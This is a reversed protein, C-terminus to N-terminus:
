PNPAAPKVSKSALIEIFRLLSVIEPTKHCKRVVDELWIRADEFLERALLGQTYDTAYALFGSELLPLNETRDVIGRWKNLFLLRNRVLIEGSTEATEYYRIERLARITGSWHHDYGTTPVIYSKLGAQRIQLGLDWEEFYCPTFGNEFRIIKQDFHELKIAFFFGSVADVTIPHSFTGKDFYMYDKCLSFNFFSGQPGVCAADPLEYLAQELDDIASREVHLDANLIFVTPTAAMELGLNWARAVGINQKLIAYRNIRPHAKLQEAVEQGNFIVIVDGDVGDLDHLLTGINYESAPSMDLVPIVFSRRATSICTSAPIDADVPPVGILSQERLEKATFTSPKGELVVSLLDEARHSYTHANHVLHQGRAAIQELLPKNELYFRAVDCINDDRYVAYDEGDRFLEDQGSHQAMDTLLLTGTSMVEFVRMNLDNKVAENFVIQSQSFLKAMENWFCREYHVPIQASLTNLLKHRRSNKQIGGVFGIVHTKEKNTAQHIEPDCGLPLWNTQIGHNRFDDLYERQAIFVMDFQKAWELHMALNLHSDILYCAKPCTVADLNEPYHGGVSEIWLYLDPQIDRCIAPFLEAMDPTLSTPIDHNNIPLKMNQLQWREILVPPLKPGITVVDCTKRLAREFYVATTVPYSVYSLLVTKGTKM